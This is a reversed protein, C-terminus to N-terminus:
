LMQLRLGQTYIVQLVVVPHYYYERPITKIVKKIAM